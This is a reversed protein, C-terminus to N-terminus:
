PWNFDFKELAGAAKAAALTRKKAEALASIRDVHCETFRKGVQHMRGSAILADLVLYEAGEIDM